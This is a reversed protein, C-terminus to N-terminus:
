ASANGCQGNKYLRADRLWEWGFADETDGKNQRLSLRTLGEDLTPRHGAPVWWMVFHMEGLIEFWDTRREYFRRHVTGWVFRELSAVDEWVTLNAVNRPDGDRFNEANGAGPEGSGEMMRVFGPMRKGIGNVHDIADMFEAVRPDEPPAILRGINLEALHIRLNFTSVKLDLRIM